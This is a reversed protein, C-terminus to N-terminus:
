VQFRWNVLRTGQDAAAVAAQLFSELERLALRDAYLTGAKSLLQRNLRSRRAQDTGIAVALPAYEDLEAAVPADEIGLFRYIGSVIRGRMFRGPWTITPVGYILSEYLTNGSGFHVPDLLVDMQPLLRMFEPLPQRPLFLLRDLLIPFREAWRRRLLDKWVANNGDLAVIWGSSDRELIGALVADFDPHFKFLSQLCGYLPGDEPLGFDRRCPVMPPVIFPEYYAPPRSLRVLTETYHSDATEPEAAGFTLFYDVTDLGTTVPHGWGVAQVPALRAYALFYTFPSMGIDPYFLVDLGLQAVIRQAAMLKNPLVVIDDAADDITQRAADLRSGPAHIVVVRFLSRDLYKIFGQTLKGITHGYLYQSVIGVRIREGRREIPKAVFNLKPARERFQRRTEEMLPRDDDGHYALYFLTQGFEQVPDEIRGPIESLVQGAEALRGRAEAISQHDLSLSPLWLQSRMLYGPRDPRLRYARALYESAATFSCLDQAVLSLDGYTETAEPKRAMAHRFAATAEDSQSQERLANGLNLYVSANDPDCALSRRYSLVAAQGQGQEKLVNGLNSQAEAYNPLLCLARRYCAVAEGLRGRDKLWVGLNSHALPQDPALELSRRYCQETGLIATDTERAAGGTRECQHLAAGMRLYAEPSAPHFIVAHRYAAAAEQNRQQTFAANGLQFYGEVLAPALRVLRRYAGAAKDGDGVDQFANGLALYPDAEGPALIACRLFAAAAAGHRGLKALATGLIGLPKAAEPRAAAARAMWTLAELPRGSRHVVFGLRLLLDSDGAREDVLGRYIYEAKPLDGLREFVMAQDILLSHLSPSGAAQDIADAPPADPV